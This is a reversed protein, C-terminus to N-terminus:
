GLLASKLLRLFKNYLNVDPFINVFKDIAYIAEDNRMLFLNLNIYLWQSGIFDPYSEYLKQVPEIKTEFNGDFITMMQFTCKVM